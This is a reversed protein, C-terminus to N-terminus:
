KGAAGLGFPDTDARPDFGLAEFTESM